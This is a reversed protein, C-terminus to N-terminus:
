WSISMMNSVTFGTLVNSDLEALHGSTNVADRHIHRQSLPIHQGRKAKSIMMSFILVPRESFSFALSQKIHGKADSVGAGNVTNNVACLRQSVAGVKLRRLGCGIRPYGPIFQESGGLGCGM